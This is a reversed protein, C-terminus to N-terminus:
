EARINAAKIVRAWKATEAKIYAAFQEPNSAVIEGGEETLRTRVPPEQLISMLEKYLLTLVPKPTRAPLMLGYWQLSEYGPLGSEAVTPVEPLVPTRKSASVGLAKLRGSRVHPLTPILNNFAVQVQGSILDLAAPSSGRYPVHVIDVGAMNKFLEMSLHSVAGIGSSAYSLKGPRSKALQILEAVSKAPLAPNVALAFAVQSIQSVPQFDRQVDYPVRQLAPNVAIASGTSILVTYGDPTAKAVIDTGITGGSGGRNDVLAPQGFRERFRESLIRAVFDSGGGPPSATVLRLPKVPYAAGQACAISAMPLLLAAACLRPLGAPLSHMDNKM